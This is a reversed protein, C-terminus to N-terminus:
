LHKDDDNSHKVNFTAKLDAIDEKIKEIHELIIRKEETNLDNSTIQPLENLNGSKRLTREILKMDEKLRPWANIMRYKLVRFEPIEENTELYKTAIAKEVLTLVYGRM